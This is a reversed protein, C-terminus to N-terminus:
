RQAIHALNTRVGIQSIRDDRFHFIATGSLQTHQNDVTRWHATYKAACGAPTPYSLVQDFWAIPFQTFRQEAYTFYAAKGTIPPANPPLYVLDDTFLTDMSAWDHLNLATFFRDILHAELHQDAALPQNLSAAILTLMQQIDFPKFAVFAFAAVDHQPLLKHATLIGVPTPYAQALVPQVNRLATTAELGFLDTMILDFTNHDIADYAQALSATTHVTYGEETLLWDLADLIDPDDEILLISKHQPPTNGM